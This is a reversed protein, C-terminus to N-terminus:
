FFGFDKLINCSQLQDWTEVLLWFIMKWFEEYLFLGIIVYPGFDMLRSYEIIFRFVVDKGQYTLGVFYLHNPNTTMVKNYITSLEIWL